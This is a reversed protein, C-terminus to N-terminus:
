PEYRWEGVINGNLDRIQGGGMDPVHIRFEVQCAVRQLAEAVDGPTQMAENGLKIKLEFM